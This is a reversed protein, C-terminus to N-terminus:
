RSLIEAFGRRSAAPALHNLEFMELPSRGIANTASRGIGSSCGMRGVNDASRFLFSGSVSAEGRSAFQQVLTRGDGRVARCPSWCRRSRLKVSKGTAPPCSIRPSSEWTIESALNVGNHRLIDYATTVHFYFNPLAFRTLYKEATLSV